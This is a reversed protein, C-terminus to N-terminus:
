SRKSLYRAIGYYNARFDSFAAFDDVQRAEARDALWGRVHADFRDARTAEPLDQRRLGDIVDTWERLGARLATMQTAVDERMGYHTRFLRDAGLAEVIETSRIWLELDYDPPPTVPLVIPLSPVCLGGIDGAYVTRAAREYFALHHVAHGPTYIAELRRNGFALTEGGQLAVVQAAPIALFKGWLRDMNAEGFVRTASAILKSPDILHRAALHHAYVTATPNAAAVLGAAGAHDLHAHTLVVAHLDALALGLRGLEAVLTDITSGPGTDLLVPGPDTMLVHAAVYRSRGLHKLDITADLPSM